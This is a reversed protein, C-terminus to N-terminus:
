SLELVLWAQQKVKSSVGAAGHLRWARKTAIWLICLVSFVLPALLIPVKLLSSSSLLSFLPLFIFKREKLSLRTQKSGSFIDFSPSKEQVQMRLSKIWSWFSSPFNTTTHGHGGYFTLNPPKVDYDHLPRWLFTSFPTICAHLATTKIILGITKQLQRRRRRGLQKLERIHWSLHFPRYGLQKDDSM